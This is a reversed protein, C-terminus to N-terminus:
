LIVNPSVTIAFYAIVTLEDSRNLVDIDEM